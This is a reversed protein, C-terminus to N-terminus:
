KQHYIKKFQVFTISWFIIKKKKSDKIAKLRSLIYKFWGSNTSLRFTLRLGFRTERLTLADNVQGERTSPVLRTGREFFSFLSDLLEKGIGSFPFDSSCERISTRCFSTVNMSLLFTTDFFCIIKMNNM